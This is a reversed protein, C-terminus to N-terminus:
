AYQSGLYTGELSPYFCQSRELGVIAGRPTKYSLKRDGSPCVKEIDYRISGLSMNYFSGNVKWVQLKATDPVGASSSHYKVATGTDAQAPLAAGGILLAITTVIVALTRKM